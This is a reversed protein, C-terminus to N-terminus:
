GVSGLNLRKHALALPPDVANRLAKIAYPFSTTPHHNTSPQIIPPHHHKFYESNKGVQRLSKIKSLKSM